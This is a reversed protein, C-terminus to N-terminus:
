PLDIIALQYVTQRNEVIIRYASKLIKDIRKETLVVEAQIWGETTYIWMEAKVTHALSGYVIIEVSGTKLM